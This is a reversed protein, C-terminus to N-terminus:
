LVDAIVKVLTFAHATNTRLIYSLVTKLALFASGGTSNGSAAIKQDQKKSILIL